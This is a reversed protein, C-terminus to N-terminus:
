IRETYVITRDSYTDRDRVWQGDCTILNLGEEASGHVRMVKRMDVDDLGVTEIHVVRYSLVEGDGREVSVVDGNTLTNLYAFLGVRTPGSAHADIVSAGLEGPKASGTYWGADYINLPAQMSGDPNLGMSLVRARVNIKDITLVRPLDPAVSYDAVADGPVETEDRGEAAQRDEPDDSAILREVEREEQAQGLWITAIWAGSGLLLFVGCGVVLGGWFKKRKPINM